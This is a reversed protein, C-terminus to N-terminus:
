CHEVLSKHRPGADPLTGQLQDPLYTQTLGNGACGRGSDWSRCSRPTSPMGSPGVTPTAGKSWAPWTTRTLVWEPVGLETFAHVMGIFLNEQRANPPLVRRLGLRLPPLGGRLVAAADDVKRTSVDKAWMETIAGALAM